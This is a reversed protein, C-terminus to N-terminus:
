YGNVVERLVKSRKLNFAESLSTYEPRGALNHKKPDDVREIEIIRWAGNHESYGVGERGPPDFITASLGYEADGDVEVNEKAWRMSRPEFASVMALAALAYPDCTRVYYDPFRHSVGDNGNGSCVAYWHPMAELATDYDLGVWDPNEQLQYGLFDYVSRDPHRYAAVPPLPEQSTLPDHM